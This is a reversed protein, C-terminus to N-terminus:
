LILLLGYTKFHDVLLEEGADINQTATIVVTDYRFYESRSNAQEDISVNTSPQIQASSRELEGPVQLLDNLFGLCNFKTPMLYVTHFRNDSSKVETKLVIARRKIGNTTM